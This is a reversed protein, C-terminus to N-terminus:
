GITRRLALLHQEVQSQLAPDFRDVGPEWVVQWVLLDEGPVRRGVLRVAGSPALVRRDSWAVSSTVQLRIIEALRDDQVLTFARVRGTGEVDAVETLTLVDPKWAAKEVQTWPLLADGVYLGSPVAVLALGTDTLGWALRREDRAVALVAEPLTRRRLKM